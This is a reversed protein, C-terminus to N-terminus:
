MTWVQNNFVDASYGSALWVMKGLKRSLGAQKMWDVFDRVRIVQINGPYDTYDEDLNLFEDIVGQLKAEDSLFIPVGMAKAFALSVVEGWNKQYKETGPLNEYLLAQTADYIVVADPNNQRVFNRDVVKAHGKVILANIQLKVEQPTLIENGYVYEHVYVVGIFQPVLEELLKIRKFRGLKIAFDADIIAVKAKLDM